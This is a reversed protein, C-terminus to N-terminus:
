ARMLTILIKLYNYQQAYVSFIQFNRFVVVCMCVFFGCLGGLFFVWLFVGFFCVFCFCFCFCFFLVFFFGLCWVCECFVWFLVFFTVFFLWFLFGVLVFVWGFCFCM